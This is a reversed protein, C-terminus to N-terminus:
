NVVLSALSRNVMEVDADTTFQADLIVFTSKVPYTRVSVGCLGIRKVKGGLFAGVGGANHGCYHRLAESDQGVLISKEGHRPWRSANGWWSTQARAGEGGRRPRVM